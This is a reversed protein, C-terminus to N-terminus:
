PAGESTLRHPVPSAVVRQALLFDVFSGVTGLQKALIAEEPIVVGHELEL